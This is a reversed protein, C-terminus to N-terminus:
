GIARAPLDLQSDMAGIRASVERAAAIVTAALAEMDVRRFATAAGAIGLSGLIQGSRNFVPASLGLVGANFEGVTTLYGARRIHALSERFAAWDSGMGATAITKKHKAYVSRLQHSPLFPLIIKSAAGTFLPRSQGRSFLNPPSNPALEERVCMVSDSFLACLLVAHGTAAVLQKMVKDGAIYLPDTQRLQRDLEIVRPGVIYNGNAVPRLLGAEHLARVHRYITSRSACTYRILADASWFPASPTFLDLLELM